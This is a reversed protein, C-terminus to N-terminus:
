IWFSKYSINSNLVSIVIMNVQLHPTALNDMTLSHATLENVRLFDVELESLHLRTPFIVQMPPYSVPLPTERANSNVREQTVPPYVEERNM